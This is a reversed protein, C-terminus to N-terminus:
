TDSQITCVEEEPVARHAPVVLQRGFVRCFPGTQNEVGWQELHCEGPSTIVLHVARGHEEFVASEVLGSHTRDLSEALRLLVALELVTRRDPEAVASLGPNRSGPFKKRHFRAIMGMIAVEREDFGLLEAHTIIYQSHVQHDTFSIFTGCDHLTAAYEMLEREGEGIRHLGITRGSDFLQRALRRVHDAHAEACGCVRALRSVSQERVSVAGHPPLYGHRLLYDVLLGEKLGRNTITVTELELHELISELIAAGPVIIDARGPNMGPVARRETLTLTLMHRAARRLGRRTLSVPSDAVTNTSMGGSVEALTQITGSSGIVRHVRYERIQELPRVLTSRCYELMAQYEATSYAGGRDRPPFLAGLRVAGIRTSTLHRHTCADGVVIETSGGGIDVFLASAGDLMLGSSVGLYILRAEEPGSVVHVDLGVERKLRELFAGQNSAERTASTAVAVLEAAGFSRALDVFRRLVRSAREMAAGSLREDTLRGEGLRIAEKQESLVAYSGDPHIRVCLLRVSNTGIDFFAVVREREM